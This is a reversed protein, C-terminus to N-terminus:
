LLHQDLKESIRERQCGLHRVDAKTAVLGHVGGLLQQGAAVLPVLDTELAVEAVLAQVRGVDVGMIIGEPALLAISSAEARLSVAKTTASTGQGHVDTLM